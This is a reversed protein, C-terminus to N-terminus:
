AWYQVWCHKLDCLYEFIFVAYDGFDNMVCLVNCM